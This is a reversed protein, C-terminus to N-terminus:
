ATVEMKEILQKFWFLPAQIKDGTQTDCKYFLYYLQLNEEIRSLLKDLRQQAESSRNELNLMRWIYFAEDHLEIVDLVAEDQVYNELFDRALLGHHRLRKGSKFENYKFTDHAIAMTRLRRYTKTDVNLQQINDLVERVHFGVKGEPHGFRPLGWNLGQQFEPTSILLSELPTEPKLLSEFDIVKEAMPNKIRSFTQTPLPLTLAHSATKM